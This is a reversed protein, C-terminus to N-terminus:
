RAPRRGIHAVAGVVICVGVIAVIVASTAGAFTTQLLAQVSVLFTIVGVVLLLMLHERLAVIVAVATTVAAIVPGIRQSADMMMFAGVTAVVTAAAMALQRPTIRRLFAFGGFVVALMWTVYGLAWPEADLLEAIGGLSFVAGWLMTLLQLPRDLNRWLALGIVFAPAGLVLAFAGSDTADFEEGIVGAVLVVGGTGLLWLFSGLRGTGDEGVGTLWTGAIFGAAAVVAGVAIRGALGLGDWNEGVAVAGGMLALVSGLYAAAEGLLSLRPADADPVVHHEVHEFERIAEAQERSILDASVWEDAHRDIWAADPSRMATSTM